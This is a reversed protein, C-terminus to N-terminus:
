RNFNEAVYKFFSSFNFMANNICQIYTKLIYIVYIPTTWLDYFQISITLILVKFHLIAVPLNTWLYYLQM